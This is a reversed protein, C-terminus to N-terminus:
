RAGVKDDLARVGDYASDPVSVFSEVGLKNLIDKGRKDEQLNLFIQKLQEKLAPELSPHVVVPPSAYPGFQDIVKTKEKLVPDHDTAFNYVLSDVSAGDVLGESVARISNDHSFTYIYGKFFSDPTEGIDKLAAEAVLKGTTSLPDTFAFTKGRLAKLTKAPSGSPVILYSYYEAAGDVQPAALLEMSGDQQGLVYSYTCVFALDVQGSRMLANVESYTQKQILRVTKGSKEEIYKLLETYNKFGQKPSVVAAVAVRLVNSDAKPNGDTISADIATLSVEKAPRSQGCGGSLIALALILVVMTVRKM